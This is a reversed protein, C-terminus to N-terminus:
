TDKLPGAVGVAFFVVGMREARAVMFQTQSERRDGYGVVAEGSYSRLTRFIAM